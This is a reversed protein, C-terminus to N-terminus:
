MEVQLLLFALDEDKVLYPGRKGSPVGNKMQWWSAVMNMPNKLWIVDTVEDDWDPSAAWTELIKWVGQHKILYRYKSHSNSWDNM